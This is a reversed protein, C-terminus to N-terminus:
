SCSSWAEVVRGAVQGPSGEAAVVVHAAERYKPDRRASIRGLGEPGRELLPRGTLSREALAEVPVKVWVVLGTRRMEAVVAADMVIGGGCAVVVDLGAVSRMAEAEARRFEQEGEAFLASVTAGTMEEVRKDLDVWERSLQAAVLPALTSKGAGMMGVLWLTTM